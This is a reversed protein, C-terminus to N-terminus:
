PLTRCGVCAGILLFFGSDWKSDSQSHGMIKRTMKIHLPQDPSSINNFASGRAPHALYNVSMVFKFEGGDNGFLLSLV